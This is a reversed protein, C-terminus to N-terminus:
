FKKTIFWFLSFFDILWWCHNNKINLKILFFLNGVGTKWVWGNGRNYSGGFGNTKLIQSGFHCRGWFPYHVNTQRQGMTKNTDKKSSRGKLDTHDIWAFWEIFWFGTQHSKVTNGFKEKITLFLSKKFWWKWNLPNM